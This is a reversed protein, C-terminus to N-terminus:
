YLFLYCQLLIGECYLHIKICLHNQQLHGIWYYGVGYSSFQLSAPPYILLYAIFLPKLNELVLAFHASKQLKM